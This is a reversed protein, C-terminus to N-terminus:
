LIHLATRGPFSRMIRGPLGIIPCVLNMRNWVIFMLSLIMMRLASCVDWVKRKGTRKETAKEMNILLIASVGGFGKM